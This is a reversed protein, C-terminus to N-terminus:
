RGLGQYPTEGIRKGNLSVAVGPEKVKVTLLSDTRTPQEAVPKEKSWAQPVLLLLSVVTPILSKMM